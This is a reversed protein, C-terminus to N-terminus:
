LQKTLIFTNKCIYDNRAMVFGPNNRSSFFITLAESKSMFIHSYQSGKAILQKLFCLKFVAECLSSTAKCM